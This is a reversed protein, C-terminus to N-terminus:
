ARGARLRRTATEDVTFNSQIVVGYDRQAEERRLYDNRV